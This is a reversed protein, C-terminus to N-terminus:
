ENLSKALLDLLATRTDPDWNQTLLMEYQEPGGESVVVDWDEQSMPTMFEAAQDKARKTNLENVRRIISNFISCEINDLEVVEGGEEHIKLRWNDRSPEFNIQYYGILNFGSYKKFEEFTEFVIQEGSIDEIDVFTGKEVIFKESM